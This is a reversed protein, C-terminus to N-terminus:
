FMINNNNYFSLMKCDNIIKMTGNKINANNNNNRLKQVQDKDYNHFQHICINTNTINYVIYNNILGIGLM